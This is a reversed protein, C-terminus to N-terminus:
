LLSLLGVEEEEVGRVNVVGDEGCFGVHLEAGDERWVRFRCVEVERWEVVMWVGKMRNQERGFFRAVEEAGLWKTSGDLSTRRGEFPNKMTEPVATFSFLTEGVPFVPFAKKRSSGEEWDWGPNAPDFVPTTPLQPSRTYFGTFAMKAPKPPAEPLPFHPHSQIAQCIHCQQANENEEEISPMVDEDSPSAIRSTEHLTRHLFGRTFLELM